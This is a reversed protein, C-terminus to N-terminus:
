FRLKMMQSIHFHFYFVPPGSYPIFCVVTYFALMPEPTHLCEAAITGKGKWTESKIRMGFFKGLLVPPLVWNLGKMGLRSIKGQSSGSWAQAVVLSHWDRGRDSQYCKFHTESPRSSRSAPGLSRRYFPGVLCLSLSGLTM